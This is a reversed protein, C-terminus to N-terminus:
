DLGDFWTGRHVFPQAPGNDFEQIKKKVNAAFSFFAKKGQEALKLAQLQAVNTSINEDDM